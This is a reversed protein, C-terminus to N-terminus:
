TIPLPLNGDTSPAIQMDPEVSNALTTLANQMTLAHVPSYTFQYSKTKDM